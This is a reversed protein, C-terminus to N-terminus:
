DEIEVPPLRGAIDRCPSTHTTVPAQPNRPFLSTLSSSSSSFSASIRSISWFIEGSTNLAISPVRAREDKDKWRLIYYM